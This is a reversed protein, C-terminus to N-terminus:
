GTLNLSQKIDMLAEEFEMGKALRVEIEYKLIEEGERGYIKEYLRKLEEYEVKEVKQVKLEEYKLEKKFDILGVLALLGVLASLPNFLVLPISVLILFLSAYFPSALMTFYIGASIPASKPVLLALLLPLPIVTMLLKTLYVREWQIVEDIKNKLTELTRSVSTRDNEIIISLEKMLKTAKLWFSSSYPTCPGVTIKSFLDAVKEVIKGDGVKAARHDLEELALIFRAKQKCMM